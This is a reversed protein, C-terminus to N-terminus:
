RSYRDGASNQHGCTGADCPRFVHGRFVHACTLYSINAEHDKERDIRKPIELTNLLNFLEQGSSVIVDFPRTSSGYVSREAMEPRIIKSPTCGDVSDLSLARRLSYRM